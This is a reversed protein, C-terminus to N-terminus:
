GRGRSWLRPPRGKMGSPGTPTPCRRRRCRSAACYSGHPQTAGSWPPLPELEPPTNLVRIASKEDYGTTAVFEESIRRNDKNAAAAYRGRIATALEMRIAHTMKTKM